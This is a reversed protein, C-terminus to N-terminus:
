LRRQYLHLHRLCYGFKKTACLCRFSVNSIQTEHKCGGKLQEKRKKKVKKWDM